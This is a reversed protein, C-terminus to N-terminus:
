LHNAIVEAEAANEIDDAGAEIRWRLGANRRFKAKDGPGIRWDVSVENGKAIEGFGGAVDGDLGPEVIHAAWSGLGDNCFNIATRRGVRLDAFEGM